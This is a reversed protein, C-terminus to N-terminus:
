HAIRRRMLNFSPYTFGMPSIPRPKVLASKAAVPALSPKFPQPKLVPRPISSPYKSQAPSAQAGGAMSSFSSAAGLVGGILSSIGSINAAKKEAKFNAAEVLHGYREMQGDEIINQSDRRGLLRASNRTAIQSKGALSVGSAAQAVEQEGLMARTEFYDKEQADIGARTRAREANYIATKENMSAVKAQYQAQMFGTVGQVVSGLAAAAAM